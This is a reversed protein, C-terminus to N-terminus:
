SAGRRLSVRLLLRGGSEINVLGQAELQLLEDAHSADLDVAAPSAAIIKGLLQARRQM